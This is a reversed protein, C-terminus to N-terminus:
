TKVKKGKPLTRLQAAEFLRMKETLEDPVRGSRPVLPIGYYISIIESLYRGAVRVESGDPIISYLLCLSESDLETQAPVYKFQYQVPKFNKLLDKESLTMLIDKATVSDNEFLTKAEQPMTLSVPIKQDVRLGIASRLFLNVGRM